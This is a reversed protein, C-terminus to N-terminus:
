VLIKAIGIAIDSYGSFDCYIQISYMITALILTSSNYISVNSYILDIYNALNDAVVMKKFFGVSLQYIGNKFASFDFFRKTTIQPLLNIAREIPGAVLQPFFSVFTAFAIFDKTPKLRKRYIDISYSMTQFTYFSIGVPLIIKITNKFIEDNGHGLLVVLSAIFFNYYKFFGLMGLNFFISGLLFVKRKKDQNSNFIKLGVFYDVTTSLFILSLFRWDWWAHFIYSSLLLICNQYKLKKHALSWYFVLVIPLFVLFEKSNFLM